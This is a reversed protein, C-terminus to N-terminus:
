KLWPSISVLLSTFLNTCLMKSFYTKTCISCKQSRKNRSMFCPVLVKCTTNMNKNLIYHLHHLPKSLGEGVSSYVEQASNKPCRENYQSKTCWIYPKGESQQSTTGSPNDRCRRQRCEMTKPVESPQQHQFKQFVTTPWIGVHYM